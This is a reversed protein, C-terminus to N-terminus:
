FIGLELIGFWALALWLEFVFTGVASLAVFTKTDMDSLGAPVTLMGRTFLLANSLPVAFVGWRDFWSEFRDLQSDSIRFWPRELLRERGWRRALLFLMVQGLTAGAIAVGFIIVYVTMTDPAVSTNQAVAIAGPVLTESPAFYLLMAGELIFIGFLAPLWYEELLTTFFTEDKTLFLWIGLVAFAGFLVFVGYDM